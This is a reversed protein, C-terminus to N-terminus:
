SRVQTLLAVSSGCADRLFAERREPEVDLARFFVDNARRFEDSGPDLEAVTM